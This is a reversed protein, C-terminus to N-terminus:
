CIAATHAGTADAADNMSAYITDTEYCYIRKMHALATKRHGEEIATLVKGM